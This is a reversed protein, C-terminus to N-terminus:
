FRLTSPNKEYKGRNNRVISFQNELPDQNLHSTILYEQEFQLENWWGVDIVGNITM